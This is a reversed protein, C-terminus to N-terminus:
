SFQMLGCGLKPQLRNEETAVKVAFGKDSYQGSLDEIDQESPIERSDMPQERPTDYLRHGATEGM